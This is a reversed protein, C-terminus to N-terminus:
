FGLDVSESNGLFLGPWRYIYCAARWSWSHWSLSRCSFESPLTPILVPSPFPFPIGLTLFLMFFPMSTPLCPYYNPVPILYMPSALHFTLHPLRSKIEDAVPFLPLKWILPHGPSVSARSLGSLCLPQHTTWAVWRGPSSLLSLHDHIHQPWLWQGTVSVIRTMVNHTGTDMWLAVAPNSNHMKWANVGKIM